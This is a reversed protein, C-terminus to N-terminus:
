AAASLCLVSSGRQRTERPGPTATLFALVGPLLSPPQTQTEMWARGLWASFTGKGRGSSDELFPCFDRVKLESTLIVDLELTRM